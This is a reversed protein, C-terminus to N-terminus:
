VAVPYRLDQKLKELVKQTVFEILVSMNDLLVRQREEFGKTGHFLNCRAQYILELVAKPQYKQAEKALKADKKRNPNGTQYDEHLYLLGLDNM